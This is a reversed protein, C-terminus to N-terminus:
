TLEIEDVNAIVHQNTLIYGDQSIFMGSGLGTVERTNDGEPPSPMTPGFFEFPHRNMNGFPNQQQVEKTTYITVVSPRVQQSVSQFAQELSKATEIGDSSATKGPLAITSLSAVVVLISVFWSIRTSSLNFM